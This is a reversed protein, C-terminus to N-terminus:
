NVQQMVAKLFSNFQYANSMDVDNEKAVNALAVLDINKDALTKLMNKNDADVNGASKEVDNIQKLLDTKLKAVESPRDPLARVASRAQDFQGNGVFKKSKEIASEIRDNLGASEEADNIQRLLDAKLKSIDAPKDPLERVLRRAATFNGASVLSRTRELTDDIKKNLKSSQEADRIQSLLNDKLERIEAPANPLNKVVAVAKSFEGQEVHKKSKTIADDVTENLEHTTEAEDIQKLLSSKLEKLESPENPIKRLRKRAEDFRKKSVLEKSEELVEEVLTNVRNTERADQIQGILNQKFERLDDPENPLESVLKEAEAFKKEEVLERSEKVCRQVLIQNLLNQKHERDEDRIAPIDNILQLAEDFKDEDVLKKSTEIADSMLIEFLCQDKFGNARESLGKVAQIERRISNIKAKRDTDESEGAKKINAHLVAKWLQSTQADDDFDDDRMDILTGCSITLAVSERHDNCLGFAVYLRLMPSLRDVIEPDGLFAALGKWDRESSEEDDDNKNGLFQNLKLGFVISFATQMSRRFSEQPIQDEQLIQQLKLAHSELPIRAACGGLALVAQGHPSEHDDAQQLGFGLKSWEAFRSLLRRAPDFSLKGPLERRHPQNPIEKASGTDLFAHYEPYFVSLWFRMLALHGLAGDQIKSNPLGTQQTRYSRIASNLWVLGAHSELWRTLLGPVRLKAIVKQQEESFERDTVTAVRQYFSLLEDWALRARDGRMIRWLLHKVYRRWYRHYATLDSQESTVTVLNRLIESQEGDLLLLRELALRTTQLDGARYESGAVRSLHFMEEVTTKAKGNRETSQVLLTELVSEAISGANSRIDALLHNPTGAVMRGDADGELRQLLSKLEPAEATLHHLRELVTARRNDDVPLIQLYLLGVPFYGPSPDDGDMLLNELEQLFHCANRHDGLAIAYRAGLYLLEPDRIGRHFEDIFRQLIREQFLTSESEAVLHRDVPPLSVSSLREPVFPLSESRDEVSHADDSSRQTDSQPTPDPIQSQGTGTTM